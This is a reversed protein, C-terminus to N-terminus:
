SSSPRSTNMRKKRSSRRRGSDILFQVVATRGNAAAIELASEWVPPIEGPKELCNLLLAVTSLYGNKSAWHLATTGPSNAELFPDAGADLLTQVVRDAGHYAANHLPTLRRKDQTNVTAGTSLLFEALALHGRRSVAALPTVGHRNKLHIDVGSTYLSEILRYDGRAALHIITNGSRTGQRRFENRPLIGDLGHVGQLLAYCAEPELQGAIIIIIENPLLTRMVSETPQAM